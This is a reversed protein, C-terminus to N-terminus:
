QKVPVTFYFTSGQGVESEVWIKGGHAEVAMKCFTLGLGKGRREGKREVQVFKEFVRSLYEQPIGMGHDKVSIVVDKSGETYSAAIEIASGAPTFKLANGILNSIVRRLIEKDAYIEPVGAGADATINKKEQRALIGMAILVEKFVSNIEINQRQLTFKGEEMKGVDLLNSIMNKIERGSTLALNFDDKQEPTLGPQLEAELLQLYGLVATLPNNLDHIIMQTLSDKMEELKKRENIEKLLEEKQQFFKVILRAIDGFETNKDQLSQISKLDETKFTRSISYLPLFIWCIVSSAGIIALLGVSLILLFLYNKSKQNFDKIELSVFSVDLRELAQGNWDNLGRSFTIVGKQPDLFLPRGGYGGAPKLGVSCETIESIEKLYSNTWLKGTFFFGLPTTKREVDKTPHITAARIEMLGAATDIFFHAFRKQYLKNFAEAPLDLRNLKDNKLNNVSYYFQQDARYLWIANAKYTSLSSGTFNTTVWAKDEGTVASVLEDWYTYDFALAELSAGKLDLTKDFNKQKEKANKEFLSIIAKRENIRFSIFVFLFAVTILFLMYILRTRVKMSFIKM